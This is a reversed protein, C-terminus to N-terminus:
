GSASGMSCEQGGAACGVPYVVKPSETAPNFDLESEFIRGFLLRAQKSLKKGPDAVFYRHAGFQMKAAGEFDIYRYKKGLARDSGPNAGLKIDKDIVSAGALVTDANTFTVYVRKSPSIKSVWSAHKAAGTCGAILAVNSAVGLAGPVGEMEVAYHLYHCGLSHFAASYPQKDQTLRAAALLRLFRALAAAGQQANVKAQAYRRAKRQIWGESTNTPKVDELTEDETDTNTKATDLGALDSGDPQFGESPWSFGVVAVNYNEELQKCRTFCTKPSNNNGHVYVLVPRNGAFVAGLRALADADSISSVPKGVKWGGGDNSNVEVCSLEPTLPTYNRTLAREDSGSQLKRNTFILM